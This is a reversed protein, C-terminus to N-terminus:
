QYIYCSYCFACKGTDVEPFQWGRITEALYGDAELAAMDEAISRMAQGIKQGEDPLVFSPNFYYVGRKAQFAPYLFFRGELLKGDAETRLRLKKSIAKLGAGEEVVASLVYPTNIDLDFVGDSAKINFVGTENDYNLTLSDYKIFSVGADRAEQVRLEGGGYGSKVTKSLFVVNKKKEAFRKAQCIAEAAIYEGTEEGHDLLIVIKESTKLNCLKDTEAGDMLNTTTEGDATFAAFQPPETIVVASFGFMGVQTTAVFSGPEGNIKVIESVDPITVTDVGESSLYKEIEANIANKGLILARM